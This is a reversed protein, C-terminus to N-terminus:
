PSGGECLEPASDCILDTIPDSTSEIIGPDEEPVQYVSIRTPEETGDGRRYPPTAVGVREERLDWEALPTENSGTSARSAVRRPRLADADGRGAAAPWRGSVSLGSSGSMTAADRQDPSTATGLSGAIMTLGVIATTVASSPDVPTCWTALRRATARLRHLGLAGTGWVGDRCDRLRRALRRKARHLLADAANRRVDLRDAIEAPGSGEMWLVVADRQRDPLDGLADRIRRDRDRGVVDDIVDAAEPMYREIVASAVERGGTRFREVILNKAITNMLPRLDDRMRGHRRLHSVTRVFVEQALDEAEDATFGRSRFIRLLRALTADYGADLESPFDAVRLSAARGV